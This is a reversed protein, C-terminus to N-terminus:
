RNIISKFACVCFVHLWNQARDWTNLSECRGIQRVSCRQFGWASTYIMVWWCSPYLIVGCPCERQKTKVSLRFKRSELVDFVFRESFAKLIYTDRGGAIVGYICQQGDTMQGLPSEAILFSVAFITM